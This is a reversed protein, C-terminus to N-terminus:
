TKKLLTTLMEMKATPLSITMDRTNIIIGLQEKIWSCKFKAFKEMSLPSRRLTEDPFGFLLFLSEISAAMATLIHEIVDAMLTDDVFPNHPTNVSTTTGPHFVGKNISDAKTPVFKVQHQNPEVEIEVAQLINAHKMVLTQDRSLHEALFARARAFPEYEHPSTKSGFVGGTPLFLWQM